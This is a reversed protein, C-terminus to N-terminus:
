HAPIDTLTGEMVFLRPDSEDLIGPYTMTPDGAPAKARILRRRSIMSAGADWSGHSFDMPQKESIM